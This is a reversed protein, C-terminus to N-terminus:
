LASPRQLADMRSLYAAEVCTAQDARFACMSRQRFWAAQIERDNETTQPDADTKAWLAALQQDLARLHPDSCVFADTAYTPAACNATTQEPPPPVPAADTTTCSVVVQLAAALAASWSVDHWAMRASL